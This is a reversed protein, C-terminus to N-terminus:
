NGCIHQPTGFFEEQRFNKGMVRIQNWNGQMCGREQGSPMGLM